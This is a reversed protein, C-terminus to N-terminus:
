LNKGCIPMAAMKILPGLVNLCDKTTRGWPPAVHFKLLVSGSAESFDNSIILMKEM